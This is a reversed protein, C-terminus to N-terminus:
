PLGRIALTNHYIISAFSPIAKLWKQVHYITYCQGNVELTMLDVADKVFNHVINTFMIHM